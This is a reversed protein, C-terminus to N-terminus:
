SAVGHALSALALPAGVQAALMGYDPEFLHGVDASFVVLAGAVAGAAVCPLVLAATGEPMWPEYDDGDADRLDLQTPWKKLLARGLLGEGIQMTAGQGRRLLPGSGGALGFAGDGQAVLIAYAEAELGGELAQEVIRVVAGTDPANSLVAAMQQQTTLHALARRYAHNARKLHENAENLELALRANERKLRYKQATREIVRLVDHEFSEFPKLLYADAGLRLADIATEVSAYGTILVVGVEDTHARIAELVQLGTMDPMKIDTVVVDFQGTCAIEVGERGSRATAIVHGHEAMVADFLSLMMEEDDIVLLRLSTEM